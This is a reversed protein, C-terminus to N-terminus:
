ECRRRDDCGDHRTSAVVAVVFPLILLFLFPRDLSQFWQVWLRYDFIEM